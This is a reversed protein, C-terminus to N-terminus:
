GAAVASAMWERARTDLQRADIGYQERLLTGGPDDEFDASAALPRFGSYFDWFRAPGFAEILYSVGANAYAYQTSDSLADESGLEVFSLKDFAGRELGDTWEDIRREGALYMAAGEGVWGPISPDALRALALHALEHQFVEVTDLGGGHGGARGRRSGLLRELNVFIQRNEPLSLPLLTVSAVGVSEESRPGGLMQEYEVRDRALVVLDTPDSQVSALRPALRARAQEARDLAATATTLGPRFLALFHASRAVQVPGTAWVPPPIEGTHAARTILWGPGRREIDYSLEFRFLNDEPLGEYRFVVEVVLNTFRADPQRSSRGLNFTANAYSLPVSAGGRAIPEEVARAGPAVAALYGEVDGRDLAAARNRLLLRVQGLPTDREDAPGHPACASGVLALVAM